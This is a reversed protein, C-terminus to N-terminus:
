TDYRDGSIIYRFVTGGSDLGDRLTMGYLTDRGVELLGGLPAAYKPLDHIDNLVGTAIDYEYIIGSGHAGGFEAMGYLKGNASQVMSIKRGGASVTAFDSLVTVSDSGTIYSFLTGSGYSGGGDSTAGYLKGDLAQMLKGAPHGGTRAKDFNVKVSYYNTAYDYEFLTGVSDPGDTFTMGYIKGNSAQVVSGPPGYEGVYGFGQPLSIHGDITTNGCTYALITGSNNDGGAGTMGLLRPGTAFAVTTFCLVIISLYIRTKM